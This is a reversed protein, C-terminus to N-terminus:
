TRVAKFIGARAISNNTEKGMEHGYLQCGVFKDISAQLDIENGNKQKGTHHNTPLPKSANRLLSFGLVRVVTNAVSNEIPKRMNLTPRVTVCNAMSCSPETGFLSRVHHGMKPIARHAIRNM